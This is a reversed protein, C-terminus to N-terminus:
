SQFLCVCVCVCACLLSVSPRMVPCWVVTHMGSPGFWVRDCPGNGKRQVLGLIELFSFSRYSSHSVKYFPYGLV